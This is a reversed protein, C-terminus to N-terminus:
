VDEPEPEEIENQTNVLEAVNAYHETILEDFMVKTEPDIGTLVSTAMRKVLESVVESPAPTTAGDLTEFMSQLQETNSIGFDQPYAVGYEYNVGIYKGFTGVIQEDLHQIQEKFDLLVEYTRASNLLKSEASEQFSRLHPMVGTRYMEEVMSTQLERLATMQGSDPSIFAPMNGTESVGTLANGTGLTFNGADSPIVLISYAQSDAIEDLISALNFIRYQISALAWAMGFPLPDTVPDDNGEPYLPFVPVYGLGNETTTIKTGEYTHLIYKSNWEVVINQTEVSQTGVSEPNVRVTEWKIYEVQSKENMVVEIIKEPTILVLFPLNGRASLEAKTMVNKVPKNDVLVFASDYIRAARAARKMFVSYPTGAGDCDNFFLELSTEDSTNITEAWSREPIARFIPTVHQNLIARSDNIQRAKIKRMDFAISDERRHPLLYEGNAYGSSGYYTADLFEWRRTEHKPNVWGLGTEFPFVTQNSEDVNPDIQELAM